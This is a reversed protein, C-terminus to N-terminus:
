SIVTIQDHPRLVEAIEELDRPTYVVGTPNSPSCLILVRSRDTIAAELIAPTLKYSEEVGTHAIVPTAGGLKVMEPYSVWFPSPIIVEDGSGALCYIAQAVSQKAGNSTLIEDPEYSLGRNERLAKCIAERLPIIGANLTYHTFGEDIAQKAAEAIPQPTNFDPEGASLGIVPRGERKLEKARATMALTASPKIEDLIPNLSVQHTFTAM